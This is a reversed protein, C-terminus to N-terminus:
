KGSEKAKKALYLARQARQAKMGAIVRGAIFWDMIRGVVPLGSDISIEGEEVLRCSNQGNSEIQNRGSVEVGQLEEMVHSWEVTGKKLDWEQELVLHEFKDEIVNGEDDTSPETKHLVLLMRNKGRKKVRCSVEVAGNERAEAELFECSTLMAIMVERSTNITSEFRYRRGM